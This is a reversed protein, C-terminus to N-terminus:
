EKALFCRGQQEVIKADVMNGRLPVLDTIDTEDKM